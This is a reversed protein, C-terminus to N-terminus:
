TRAAGKKKDAVKARLTTLANEYDKTASDITAGPVTTNGEGYIKPMEEVHTGIPFDIREFELGNFRLAADVTMCPHSPPLAHLTITPTM